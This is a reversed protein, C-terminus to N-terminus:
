APHDRTQHLFGRPHSSPFRDLITFYPRYTDSIQANPLCSANEALNRRLSHPTLSSSVNSVHEPTSTQYRTQLGLCKRRYSYSKPREVQCSSILTWLISTTGRTASHTTTITHSQTQQSKLTDKSLYSKLLFFLLQHKESAFLVIRM